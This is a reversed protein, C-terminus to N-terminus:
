ERGYLEERTWHGIPPEVAPRSRLEELWARRSARRAAEEDAFPVIRAVPRGHSTVTVSQGERVTRLLRSFSRNAEAASVIHDM